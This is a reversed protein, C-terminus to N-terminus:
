RFSKSQVQNPTNIQGDVIVHAIHVRQPHFERAMSQALARLAFKTAAFGGFNAAGRVSATAGTFIITGKKNKIM